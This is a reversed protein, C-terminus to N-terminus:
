ETFPPSGSLIIPLWMSGGALYHTIKLLNWSTSPSRPLTNQLYKANQPIGLAV